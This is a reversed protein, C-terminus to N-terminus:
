RPVSLHGPALDLTIGYLTIPVMSTAGSSFYFEDGEQLHIGAGISPSEWIYTSNAELNINHMIKLPSGVPTTVGKPRHYLSFNIEHQLNCIHIRTIETSIKATFILANAGSTIYEQALLSGQAFM